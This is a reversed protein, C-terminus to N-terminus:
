TLIGEKRSVNESIAQGHFVWPTEMLCARQGYLRGVSVKYFEAYRNLPLHEAKVTTLQVSM